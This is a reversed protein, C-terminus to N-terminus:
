NGGTKGASRGCAGGTSLRQYEAVDDDHDRLRQGRILARQKAARVVPQWPQVRQRTRVMVERMKIGVPEGRIAAFNGGDLMILGVIVSIGAFIGAGTAIDM